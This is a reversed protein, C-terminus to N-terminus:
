DEAIVVQDSVMAPFVTGEGKGPATTVIIVHRSVQRIIGLLHWDKHNTQLHTMIMWAGAARAWLLGAILNQISGRGDKNLVKVGLLSYPTPTHGAQQATQRDKNLLYLAQMTSSGNFDQPGEGTFDVADAIHNVLCPHDLMLGTGMVAIKTAAEPAARPAETCGDIIVGYEGTAPNYLQELPFRTRSVLSVEGALYAPLHNWFYDLVTYGDDLTINYFPHDELLRLFHQRSKDDHYASRLLQGLARRMEEIRGEYLLVAIFLLLTEMGGRDGHYAAEVQERARKLDGERLALYAQGDHIRPTLSTTVANFDETMAINFSTGEATKFTARAATFEGLAIESFGRAVLAAEKRRVNIDAWLKVASDFNIVARTFDGLRHYLRGLSERVQAILGAENPKLHSCVLELVEAVEHYYEGRAVLLLREACHVAGLSLSNLDAGSLAELRHGRASPDDNILAAILAYQPAYRRDEDLAYALITAKVVLNTQLFVQAVVTNDFHHFSTDFSAARQKYRDLLINAETVNGKLAHSISLNYYAAALTPDLESLAENVQIALNYDEDYFARSGFAQLRILLSPDLKAAEIYNSLARQKDGLREAFSAYNHWIAANRTKLEVAREFSIAAEDNRNLSMLATALEGHLNADSPHITLRRNVIEAAKEWDQEQAALMSLLGLAQDEVYPYTLAFEAYERALVPYNHEHFLDAYRYYFDGVRLPQIDPFSVYQGKQAISLGGRRGAGPEYTDKDVVAIGWVGEAEAPCWKAENGANGTTAVFGNWLGKKNVVEAALECIVRASPQRTIDVGGAIFILGIKKDYKYLYRLARALSKPTPIGGPGAFAKLILLRAYPEFWIQRIAQITGHGCVDEVGEGTFDEALEIKGRLLPHETLVGSDIIAVLNSQFISIPTFHGPYPLFNSMRLGHDDETGDGFLRRREERRMYAGEIQEALTAYTPALFEQTEPSRVLHLFYGSTHLSGAPKDADPDSEMQKFLVDFRDNDTDSQQTM